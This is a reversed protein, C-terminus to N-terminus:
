SYTQLTKSRASSPVGFKERIKAAEIRQQDPDDIRALAAYANARAQDHEFSGPVLVEFEPPPTGPRFFVRGFRQEQQEPTLDFVCAGLRDTNAERTAQNVFLVSGRKMVQAYGPSDGSHVTLGDSEFWVTVGTEGNTTTSM